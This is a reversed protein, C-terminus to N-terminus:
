CYLAHGGCSPPLLRYFPATQLASSPHGAAERAGGGRLFGRGLWGPEMQPQMVFDAGLEEGELCLHCSNVSSQSCRNVKGEERLFRVRLM